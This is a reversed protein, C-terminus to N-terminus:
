HPMFYLQGGWETDSFLAGVVKTGFVNVGEWINQGGGGGLILHEFSFTM